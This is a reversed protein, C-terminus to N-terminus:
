RALWMTKQLVSSKQTAIARAESTRTATMVAATKGTGTRAAGDLLVISTTMMIASKRKQKVTVDVGASRTRTEQGIRRATTTTTKRENRAIAGTASVTRTAPGIETSTKTAETSADRAPSRIEIATLTPKMTTSARKLLHAHVTAVAINRAVTATHAHLATSKRTVAVAVTSPTPQPVAHEIAAVGEITVTTTDHPATTDAIKAANMTTTVKRHQQVDEAKANQTATQLARGIEAITRRKM